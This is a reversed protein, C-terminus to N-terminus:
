QFCDEVDLCDVAAGVCNPYLNIGTEKMFYVCVDVCGVDDSTGKVDDPGYSGDYGDCRLRAMTECAEGCNVIAAPIDEPAIPQPKPKCGICFSVAVGVVFVLLLFFVLERAIRLIM